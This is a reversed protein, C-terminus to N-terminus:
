PIWRFWQHNHNITDWLDEEPSFWATWWMSSGSTTIYQFLSFNKLLYLHTINTQLQMSWNKGKKFIPVVAVTKWIASLSGQDLSAQFIITLVPAIKNAMEKLFHAPLNDPGSAKHAQINCLLHIVGELHFILCVIVIWIPTYSIIDEQIFVSSFYDALVNAKAIPDTITTGQHSLPRSWFLRIKSKQNM